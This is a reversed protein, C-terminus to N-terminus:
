KLLPQIREKWIQRVNQDLEKLSGNNEIIISSSEAKRAFPLQSSIRHNIQEENFDDRITLRRKILNLKSNVTIVLDFEREIGWEYILAADVVVVDYCIKFSEIKERMKEHLLPFIKDDLIKKKVPDSFVLDGLKKRVLRGSSDFCQEGFTDNVWQLLGPSNDMVERGILDASIYGAGLEILTKAAETKGM